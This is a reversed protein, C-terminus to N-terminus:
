FVATKVFNLVNGLVSPTPPPSVPSIVEIDFEPSAVSHTIYRVETRRRKAPLEGTMSYIKFQINLRGVSKDTTTFISIEQVYENGAAYLRSCDDFTVLTTQPVNMRITYFGVPGGEYQPHRVHNGIYIRPKPDPDTSSKHEHGLPIISARDPIEGLIQLARSVLARDAEITVTNTIDSIVHADLAITDVPGLHHHDTSEDTPRARKLHSSEM